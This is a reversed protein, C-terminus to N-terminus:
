ADKGALVRENVKKLEAVVWPQLIPNDIDAVRFTPQEGRNNPVYPYDKHNTVPRPGTPLAIWETGASLWGVNSAPAFDPVGTKATGQAATPAPWLAAGVCLLGALLGGALVRMRSVTNSAFASM